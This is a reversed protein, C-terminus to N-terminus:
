EYTRCPRCGFDSLRYAPADGLRDASRIFSPPYYFSGGRLLRPTEKIFESNYMDHNEAKDYSDQCWEYVNGLMDFLGLDNPLLSGVPAARDNSNAFYWSYRGLLRETLGYYRSTVAGARAAYEWEAETPLRYGSSKLADAKIRMGQAYQGQENPEYCELLHEKRSLWNCYAAAHYWSMGNMPGKAEQSRDDYKAHDAGPNEKIFEQYQLVTVETDAIAFPRPIVEQHCPENGYAGPENPPSGMRFAVPGRVIAFM